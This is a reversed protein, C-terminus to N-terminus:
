VTSTLLLNLPSPRISLTGSSSHVYTWSITCSIPILVMGLSFFHLFAFHSDSSAKCIATFLLSASLLSSFTLYVGKFASNWLIALLSLFFGKETILVFFYFFVISHSLSPIEELFSSIDLSCKLCPHAMIFSLFLLSKVSAFSISFINYSYVSSQLIPRWSLSLWSPTTVWGSGPM